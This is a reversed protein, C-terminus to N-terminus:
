FKRASIDQKYDVGVNMKVLSFGVKKGYNNIFIFKNENKQINFPFDVDYIRRQEIFWLGAGIM